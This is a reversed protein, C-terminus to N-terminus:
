DAYEGYGLHKRYAAAQHDRNQQTTITEWQQAASELAEEATLEGGLAREVEASLAQLYNDIGPVRPLLFCNEASLQRTIAQAAGHSIGQGATWETAESIQSARFWVTAKSRQSLQTAVQGSALWELLNFASAANRTARTVSMVRGSFGLMVPTTPVEKPEWIGLSDNYVEDTSAQGKIMQELARVFPPSSIRPQMTEPDFLIARRSTLNVYGITRTLLEGAAPHELQQLSFLPPEGLSLAVVKGGYPMVRNRILPLLDSQAFAKSQLVSTRVPRLDDRAALTGVYRSPYVVLDASRKEAALLEGITAEEVVLQGGTREAWEGRLLNLGTALNSDDVVQVTLKVVARPPAASEQDPNAQEEQCGVVLLYLCCPLVLFANRM